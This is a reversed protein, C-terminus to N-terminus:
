NTEDDPNAKNKPGNGQPKELNENETDNKAVELDDEKTWVAITKGDDLVVGYVAVEGDVSGEVIVDGSDATYPKGWEATPAQGKFFEAAEDADFESNDPKRSLVRSVKGNLIFVTIKYGSSGKFLYKTRGPIASNPEVTLPKGYHQKCEALTHGLQAQASTLLGFAAILSLIIKQM